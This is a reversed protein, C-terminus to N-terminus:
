QVTSGELQSNLEKVHGGIALAVRELEGLDATKVWELVKDVGIAPPGDIPKGKEEVWWALSILPEAIAEEIADRIKRTEGWAARIDTEELSVEVEIKGIFPAARPRKARCEDCIIGREAPRQSCRGCIPRASM